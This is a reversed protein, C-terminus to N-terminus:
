KKILMKRTASFNEANITYFYIGSSVPEGNDNQGDWHVAGSQSSYDGAKMTGPSLTRILNGTSNFIDITVPSEEALRFPIWTEPNFPNPYNQLLQNRKIQGLTVLMKDKPEVTYPLSSFLVKADWIHYKGTQEMSVLYSGDRSLGHYRQLSSLKIPRSTKWDWIQLNGNQITFLYRKDNGFHIPANVGPLTSVHQITNPLIKWIQTEGKGANALVTTGDMQTAFSLTSYSLSAYSPNDHMQTEWRHLLKYNDVDREWVLIWYKYNNHEGTAAIAALYTDNESFAISKYFHREKPYEYDVSHMTGPNILDWLFLYGFSEVGALWRGSPSFEANKLFVSIDQTQVEVEGTQINAIEVLPYKSYAIKKNDSSIAVGKDFHYVGPIVFRVQQTPIDWVKIFFSEISILTKGDPSIRPIGGYYDAFVKRLQKSKIDWLEVVGGFIYGGYQLLMVQGDPSLLMQQLQWNENGFTDVHQGSKVDYININKHAVYLHQSNPSFEVDSIGNENIPKKWILQRTGVDWLYVINTHKEFSALYKGNSSIALGTVWNSINGEFHGILNRTELNWVEIDPRTSAVFLYQGDPTIEFDHDYPRNSCTRNVSEGIAPELEGVSCKKWARREGIMNGILEGTNWDWVQIEKNNSVVFLPHIPSFEADDGIRFQTNWESVLERAKVDWITVKTMNSDSIDDLIAVHTANPSYIVRSYKSRVGFEDIIEGTDREVIQLNTNYFSTRLLTDNTLFAHKEPPPQGLKAIPEIAYIFNPICILCILTLYFHKKM